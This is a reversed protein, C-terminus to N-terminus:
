WPARVPYLGFQDTSSPHYPTQSFGGGGESGGMGLGQRGFQHHIPTSRVQGVGWAYSTQYSSTPPVVLATPERFRWNSYDGHWPRSAAEMQNWGHTRGALVGPNSFTYVPAPSFRGKRAAMLMTKQPSIRNTYDTMTMGEADTGSYIPGRNGLRSLLQADSETSTMVITAVIVLGFTLGMKNM